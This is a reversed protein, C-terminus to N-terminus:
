GPAATATFVVDIYGHANLTDVDINQGDFPTSLEVTPPTPAAPPLTVGVSHGFISFGNVTLKQLQFGLGGGFSFAAAGNIGFVSTLSGDIPVSISVSANPIAVDVRGSPQLKFTVDGHITVIGAASIDIGTADVETVRASSTFPMNVFNPTAGDPMLIHDTVAHGTQNVKVTVTGSITLGDLGVLSATGQAFIAFTGDAYEVAGLTGNTIVLGIADPNVSNDDLRYPGDGFFM